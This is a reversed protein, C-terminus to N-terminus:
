KLLKANKLAERLFKNVLYNRSRDEKLAVEDLAELIDENIRLSTGISKVKVATTKAVAKVVKVPVKESAKLVPGASGAQSKKLADKLSNAKPKIGEM